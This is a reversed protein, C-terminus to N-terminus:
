RKRSGKRSAKAPRPARRPEERAAPPNSLHYAMYFGLGIALIAFLYFLVLNGYVFFAVALASLIIVGLSFAFARAEHQNEIFAFEM